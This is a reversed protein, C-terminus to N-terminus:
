SWGALWDSGRAGRGKLVSGVRVGWGRFPKAHHALGPLAMGSCSPRLERSTSCGQNHKTQTHHHGSPM